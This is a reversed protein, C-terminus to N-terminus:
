PPAVVFKGFSCVEDLQEDLVGGTNMELGDGFVNSVKMLEQKNNEPNEAYEMDM